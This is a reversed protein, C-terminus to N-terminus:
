LGLLEADEQLLKLAIKKTDITYEGNDVQAKIGSVKESRADPSALASTYAEARLKAESSVTSKDAGSSSTESEVNRRESKLRLSENRESQEMKAYPDLNQFNKIQM